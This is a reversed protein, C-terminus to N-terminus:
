SVNEERDEVHRLLMRELRDSNAEKISFRFDRGPDSAGQRLTVVVKIKSRRSRGLKKLLWRILHSVTEKAVAGLVVSIVLEGVGLRGGAVPMQTPEGPDLNLQECFGTRLEGAEAGAEAGRYFIAVHESSNSQEPASDM